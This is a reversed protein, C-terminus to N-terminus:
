EQEVLAWVAISKWRNSCSVREGRVEFLQPNNTLTYYVSGRSLNLAIAIEHATAGVSDSRGHARLFEVVQLGVGSISHPTKRRWPKRGTSNWDNQADEVIAPHAELPLVIVGSPPTYNDAAYVIRTM